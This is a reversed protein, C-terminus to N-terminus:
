KVRDYNNWWRRCENERRISNNHYWGGWSKYVGIIKEFDKNEWTNLNLKVVKINFKLYSPM